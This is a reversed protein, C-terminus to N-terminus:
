FVAYLPVGAGGLVSVMMAFFPLEREVGERRQAVLDGLRLQPAVAVGLPVAAALLFWPSILSGVLAVPFSVLASRSARKFTEAAM